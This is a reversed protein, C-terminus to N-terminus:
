NDLYILVELNDKINEYKWQKVVDKAILGIFAIILLM